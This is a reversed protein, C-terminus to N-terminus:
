FIKCHTNNDCIYGCKNKNEKEIKIELTNQTIQNFKTSSITPNSLSLKVVSKEILKDETTTADKTYPLIVPRTQSVKLNSDSSKSSPSLSSDSSNISRMSSSPIDGPKLFIDGKISIRGDKTIHVQKNSVFPSKIIKNNLSIRKMLESQSILLSSKEDEDQFINNPIIPPFYVSQM